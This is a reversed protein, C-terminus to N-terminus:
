TYDPHQRLLEEVEDITKPIRPQMSRKARQTRQRMADNYAVVLGLFDRRVRDFIERPLDRSTMAERACASVFAVNKQQESEPPHNHAHQGDKRFEGSDIDRRLRANCNGHKKKHSKCIFIDDYVDQLFM